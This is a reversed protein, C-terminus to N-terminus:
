DFDMYWLHSMIKWATKIWADSSTTVSNSAFCALSHMRFQWNNGVIIFFSNKWPFIFLVVCKVLIFKPLLHQWHKETKEEVKPRQRYEVRYLRICGETRYCNQLFFLLLHGSRNITEFHLNNKNQQWQKKRVSYDNRIPKVSVKLGAMIMMLIACIRLYTGRETPWLRTTTPQNGWRGGGVEWCLVDLICNTPSHMWINDAMTCALFLLICM